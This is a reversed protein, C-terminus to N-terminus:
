DGIWTDLNIAVKSFAFDVAVVLWFADAWAVPGSAETILVDILTQAIGASGSSSTVIGLTSEFARAWESELSISGDFSSAARTFCIRNVNPEWKFRSISSHASPVWLQPGELIQVFLWPPNLHEQGAPKMPFGGATLHRGAAGAPFSPLFLFLILFKENAIKM